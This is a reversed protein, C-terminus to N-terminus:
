YLIEWKFVDEGNPKFAQILLTEEGDNLEVFLDVSKVTEGVIRYFVDEAIKQADDINDVVLTGYVGDKVQHLKFSVVGKMELVEEEVFAMEEETFTQRDIEDKYEVRPGSFLIMVWGIFGLILLIVVIKGVVIPIKKQSM